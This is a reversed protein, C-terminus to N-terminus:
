RCRAQAGDVVERVVAVQEPDARSSDDVDRLTEEVLDVSRHQAAAQLFEM